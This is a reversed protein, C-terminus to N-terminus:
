RIGTFRSQSALFALTVNVDSNKSLIEGVCSKVTSGTTVVDDILVINKPIDNKIVAFKDAVNKERDSVKKKNKQDSSFGRRKLLTVLQLNKNRKCLIKCPELVHDYGYERVNVRRRPVYAVGGSFTSGVALEYLNSAYKFLDKNATRKLAFLLKKVIEHNYDFLYSGELERDKVMITCKRVYVLEKLEGDCRSCVAGKPIKEGCLKCRCDFFLDIFGM